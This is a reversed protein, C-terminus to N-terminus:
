TYLPVGSVVVERIRGITRYSDTSMLHLGQVASLEIPIPPHLNAINSKAPTRQLCTISETYRGEDAYATLYSCTIHWGITEQRRTTAMTVPCRSRSVTTM